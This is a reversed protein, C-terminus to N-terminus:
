WWLPLEHVQACSTRNCMTPNCQPTVLTSLSRGTLSAYHLYHVDRQSEGGLGNSHEVTYIQLMIYLLISWHARGTVVMIANHCSTFKPVRHLTVCQLIANYINQKIIYYNKQMTEFQLQKTPLPPPNLGHITTNLLYEATYLLNIYLQTFCKVKIKELNACNALHRVVLWFTRPEIGPRALQPNFKPHGGKAVSDM